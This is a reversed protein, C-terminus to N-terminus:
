CTFNDNPLVKAIDNFSLANSKFLFVHARLQSNIYSRQRGVLQVDLYLSTGIAIVVVPTCFFCRWEPM